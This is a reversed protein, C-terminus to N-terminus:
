TANWEQVNVWEIDGTAVNTEGYDKDFESGVLSIRYEDWGDSKLGVNPWKMYYGLVPFVKGKYRLDSTDKVKLEGVLVKKVGLIKCLSHELSPQNDGRWKLYDAHAKSPLPFHDVRQEQYLYLRQLVNMVIMDMRHLNSKLSESLEPEL